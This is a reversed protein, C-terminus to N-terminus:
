DPQFNDQRCMKTSSLETERGHDAVVHVQFSFARSRAQIIHLLVGCTWKKRRLTAAQTAARLETDDREDPLEQRIFQRFNLTSV